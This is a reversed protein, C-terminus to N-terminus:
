RIEKIKDAYRAAIEGMAQMMEARMQAGLKENGPPLRLMGTMGMGRGMMSQCQGMMNNGMMGGHQMPMGNGAAASSVATAAYAAAGGVALAAAFAWSKISFLRTHM